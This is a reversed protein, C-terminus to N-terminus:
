AITRIYFTKPNLTDSRGRLVGTNKLKEPDRFSGRDLKAAHTITITSLFGWTDIYFKSWPPLLGKSGSRNRDTLFHINQGIQIDM